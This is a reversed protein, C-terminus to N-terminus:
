KIVVSIERTIINQNGNRYPWGDPGILELRIIHKGPVWGSLGFPQPNDIWRADDDDIIYRLRFDGGESRLKANRVVFDLVVVDGVHFVAGNSLNLLLLPKNPDVGISQDDLLSNSPTNTQVAPASVVSLVQHPPPQVYTTATTHRSENGGGCASLLLLVVLLAKITLSPNNMATPTAM